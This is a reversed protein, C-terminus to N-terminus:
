SSVKKYTNPMGVTLGRVIEIGDIGRLIEAAYSRTIEIGRTAAENVLESANFESPMAESVIEAILQSKSRRGVAPSNGEAEVAAKAKYATRTLALATACPVQKAAIEALARQAEQLGQVTVTLM